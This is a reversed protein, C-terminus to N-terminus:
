HAKAKNQAIIRRTSINEPWRIKLIKRLLNQHLSTNKNHHHCQNELYRSSPKLSGLRPQSALQVPDGSTQWSFAAQAKGISINVDAYTGGHNDLISGLYTFINLLGLAEGQVTMPTDNTTNTKPFNSKGRNITLSLRSSNEAVM